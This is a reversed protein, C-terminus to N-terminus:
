SSFGKVRRRKRRNRAAPRRHGGSFSGARRARQRARSKRRKGGRSFSARSAGSASAESLQLIVPAAYLAATTLGLRMLMRRRTMLPQDTEDHSTTM